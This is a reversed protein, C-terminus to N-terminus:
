KPEFIRELPKSSNYATGRCVCCRSVHQQPFCWAFSMVKTLMSSINSLLKLLPKNGRPRYTHPKFGKPKLTGWKWDHPMSNNINWFDQQMWNIQILYLRRNSADNMQFVHGNLPNDAWLADYDIGQFDSVMLLINGQFQLKIFGKSFCHDKSYFWQLFYDKSSFFYPFSGM